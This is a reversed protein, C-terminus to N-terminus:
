ATFDFPHNEKTLFGHFRPACHHAGLDGNNRIEDDLLQYLHNVAKIFGIGDNIHIDLLPTNHAMEKCIENYLFDLEAKRQENINM